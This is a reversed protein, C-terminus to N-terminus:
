RRSIRMGTCKSKEVMAITYPKYSIIEEYSSYCWITLDNCGRNERLLENGIRILQADVIGKPVVIRYKLGRTKGVGWPNMDWIVYGERQIAQEESFPTNIYKQRNRGSKTMKSAIAKIIKM